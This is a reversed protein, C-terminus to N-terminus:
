SCVEMTNYEGGEEVEGWGPGPPPVSLSAAQLGSAKNASRWTMGMEGLKGPLYLKKSSMKRNNKLKEKGM